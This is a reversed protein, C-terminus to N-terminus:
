ASRYIRSAAVEPLSLLRAAKDITAQSMRDAIAILVSKSADAHVLVLEHRNGSLSARIHHALGAYNALPETWSRSGFPTSDHVTVTNGDIAVSRSAGMRAVVRKIPWIFLAAWTILGLAIQAASLPHNALHALPSSGAEGSAFAGILTLPVALMVMMPALMLLRIVSATRSTTLKLEIPLREFDSAPELHDFAIGGLM